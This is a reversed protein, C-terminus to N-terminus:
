AGGKDTPAHKLWAQANGALVLGAERESLGLGDLLARAQSHAQRLDAGSCPLFRDSGYILLEAGLVQWARGVVQKRYPPPPGFSIDLRFQCGQPEVGKIRDVLAVAIAEDSWPWGLHALSVRLKPTDRVAEYYAPRCFRSSRGDIFIGSHFLVPLGAAEAAAYVALAREEYPYWGAPVLKLGRLGLSAAREVEEPAGPLAPNVVAFGALRDGHGRVLAALHENAARLSAADHLSYPPTLFPALVCAMDVGAEDLAALVETATERGSAHLHADVITV